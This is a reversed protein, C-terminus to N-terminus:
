SIVEPLQAFAHQLAGLASAIQWTSRDRPGIANSIARVELFAIGATKAATAVAFGEMAEAAALPFRDALRQTSAASGTVTSLTLIPAVNADPISKAWETAHQLWSAAVQTAGGFGLEDVPIFTGEATEAGLDAVISASGIVISGIAARGVFGGAIGANIVVDPQHEQILKTTGVSAEYPGAGCVAVCFRSDGRIGAEIAQKEAEVATVILIKGM